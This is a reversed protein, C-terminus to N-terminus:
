ISLAFVIPPSSFGYSSFLDFNQEQQKSVLIEHKVAWLKKPDHTEELLAPNEIHYTTLKAFLKTAYSEGCEGFLTMRHKHNGLSFTLLSFRERGLSVIHQGAMTSVEQHTTRVTFCATISLKLAATGEGAATLSCSSTSVCIHYANVSGKEPSSGLFVSGKHGHPTARGIFPLPTDIKHWEGSITDFAYTSGPKQNLSILIYHLVVVYSRITIVPPSKYGNPSLRRPFCLPWSLEEWSCGDLSLSGDAAKTVTTKSLDLVEFWPVLNRKKPESTDIIITSGPNGGVGIIWGSPPLSIFTKGVVCTELRAIQRLSERSAPAGTPLSSSHDPVSVKYLPCRSEPAFDSNRCCVSLYVSPDMGGIGRQNLDKLHPNTFFTESKGSPPMPERGALKGQAM